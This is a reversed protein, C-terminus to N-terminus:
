LYVFNQICLGIRFETDYVMGKTCYMEKIKKKLKEHVTNVVFYM